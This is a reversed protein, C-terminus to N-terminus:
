KSRGASTKTRLNVPSLDRAAQVLIANRTVKDKLCGTDKITAWMSSMAVGRLEEQTLDQDRGRKFLLQLSARCYQQVVM